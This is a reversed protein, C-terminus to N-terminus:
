LSVTERHHVRRPLNKTRQSLAIHCIKVSALSTNVSWRCQVAPSKPQKSGEEEAAAAFVLQSAASGATITKAVLIDVVHLTIM